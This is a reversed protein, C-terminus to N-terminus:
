ISVFLLYPASVKRYYPDELKPSLHHYFFCNRSGERYIDILTIQKKTHFYLRMQYESRETTKVSFLKM